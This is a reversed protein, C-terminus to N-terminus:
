LVVHVSRPDCDEHLQVDRSMSALRAEDIDKQNRHELLVLHGLNDHKCYLNHEHCSSGRRREYGDQFYVALVMLLPINTYCIIGASPHTDGASCEPIEKDRRVHGAGLDWTISPLLVEKCNKFNCPGSAVRDTHPRILLLNGSNTDHGPNRGTKRPQSLHRM